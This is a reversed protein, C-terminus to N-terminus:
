IKIDGQSAVAQLQYGTLLEAHGLNFAALWLCLALLWFATPEQGGALELSNVGDSM